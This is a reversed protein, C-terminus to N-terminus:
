ADPALPEVEESQPMIQIIGGVFPRVSYFIAVTMLITTAAISVGLAHVGLKASKPKKLFYAASLTILALPIILGSKAIMKSHESLFELEIGPYHYRFAKLNQDIAGNALLLLLVQSIAAVALYIAMTKQTPWISESM